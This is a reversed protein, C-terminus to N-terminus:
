HKTAATAERALHEADVAEDYGAQKDKARAALVQQEFDGLIKDILKDVDPKVDHYQVDLHGAYAAFIAKHTNHVLNAVACIDYMAQAFINIVVDNEDENTYYEVVAPHRNATEFIQQCYSEIQDTITALILAAMRPDDILTDKVEKDAIIATNIHEDVKGFAARTQQVLNYLFEQRGLDDM